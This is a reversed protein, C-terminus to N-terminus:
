GPENVRVLDFWNFDQDHWETYFVLEFRAPSLLDLLNPVDLWEEWPTGPGDLMQGWEEFPVAGERIWRALPVALQLWRGGVRLRRGLAQYEPRMIHKPANHLSGLALVVDYDDPLEDLAAINRVHFTDVDLGLLGATRGALEINDEVIDALTVHAGEEAFTLSDYAFGCGIDLIKKGPMTDAYLLRYWGRVNAGRDRQERWLALLQDDSLRLLDASEARREALPITGWKRRLTDLPREWPDASQRRPQLSALLRRV